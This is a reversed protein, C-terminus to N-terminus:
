NGQKFNVPRIEISNQRRSYIQVIISALPSWQYSMDRGNIQTTCPWIPICVDSLSHRVNITCM